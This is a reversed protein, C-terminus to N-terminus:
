FRYSVIGKLFLPTGPTFHLESVPTTENRLRSETDFQAQNWQANLLNEASLGFEVHTLRYSVGADVLFYGKAVVTNMENAPRDAIYRYRLSANFGKDRKYSLGGITTFQPALPIRNESSPVDLIRGHSYNVDMDAFLRD